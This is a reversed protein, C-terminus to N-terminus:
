FTYFLLPLRFKSVREIETIWDPTAITSYFASLAADCDDLMAKLKILDKPTDAKLSILVLIVKPFSSLPKFALHANGDEIL